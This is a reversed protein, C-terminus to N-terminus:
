RALLWAAVFPTVNTATHVLIPALLSRTRLRLWAFVLGALTTAAVTALVVGVRGAGSGAAGAVVANAGASRWAGPVHWLGFALASWVIAPWVGIRRLLAALLVGRFALEELLVTAVPIVVLAKVLMSGFDIAVRDDDFAGALAPVFAAGAVAVVVVSAAGAGWGMGAPAHRPDLGLEGRGMELIRALVAVSTLLGLNFWTHFQPPVLVTRVALGVVLFLGTAWLETAPHPRRLPNV